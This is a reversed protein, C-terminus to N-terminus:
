GAGDHFFGYVARATAANVGPTRMLDDLSAAAVAKATGFALLLARKRAPGIGAIEDLPSRMMDKKRRARHTGIAFRHAEDRLRQVFYLAPDRPPLRFPARGEIFFSERGADRDPGKAISVLSVGTVGLEAFVAKAAEHQGRGGDILVLDPWAPMAAADADADVDADVEDDPAPGAGEEPPQVAAAITPAPQPEEKLLRAFRRRLMEKMMAYDDGPTLDESRMNFTRYHTKAFGNVGAVIMGGVANTGMIHSNDYVEIRRPPRPLGFAAALAQMLKHQSATEALRRSLAEHANRAAHAALDRKEGRKPTAVEVARGAKASFAEALLPREDPETSTLILRPCPRDDYFQAIFAALVEGAAMSRDARPFYSVNGWNQGNRFFFAQVCFQGAQEAVGFVDAEDVTRPNVEQSSQIASLAALRDRYRAAKEFELNESAAQMDRAMRARVQTSRGSLFDKAEQVLGDYDQPSIENTCPGSCRKIQFQLCPRTRNEFYSDTCSRLLFAREMADLTRTVAGANAFPGYYDGPRNRAGRHKVIQPARHGSTVLIYPFSKDDRLLVNYRPRLQKILNAELLLAETETRTTVFEMRATAAIMRATRAGGHGVGRTYSAVRNRLNRAKGVYLVEGEANFMRYVGPSGPLTRWFKRIVEAGAALAGSAMAADSAAFDLDVGSSGEDYRMAASATDGVDAPEAASTDMPEGPPAVAQPASEADAIPEPDRGTPAASVTM